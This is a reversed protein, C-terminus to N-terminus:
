KVYEKSPYKSYDMYLYKQPDAKVRELWLESRTKTKGETFPNSMSAPYLFLHSPEICRSNGCAHYVAFFSIDEISIGRDKVFMVRHTAHAKGNVKTMGKKAKQTHEVCPIQAVVEPNPLEFLTKDM